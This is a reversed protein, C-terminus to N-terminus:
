NGEGFTLGGVRVTHVGVVESLNVGGSVRLGVLEFTSPPWPM